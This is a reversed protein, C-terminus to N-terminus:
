IGQRNLSHGHRRRARECCRTDIQEKYRARGLVRDNWMGDRLAGGEVAALDAAVAGFCTHLLSGYRCVLPVVGRRALPV